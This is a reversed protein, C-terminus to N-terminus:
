FLDYCFIVSIFWHIVCIIQRTDALQKRSNTNITKCFEHKRYLPVDKRPIEFIRYDNFDMSQEIYCNNSVYLILFM